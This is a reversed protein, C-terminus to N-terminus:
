RSSGHTSPWNAEGSRSLERRAALGSLEFLWTRPRCCGEVYVWTRRPSSGGEPRTQSAVHGLVSGHPTSKARPRPMISGHRDAVHCPPLNQRGGRRGSEARGPRLALRPRLPVEGVECGLLGHLLGHLPEEAAPSQAAHGCPWARACPCRALRAGSSGTSCVMCRSKPPRVIRSPAAAIVSSSGSM